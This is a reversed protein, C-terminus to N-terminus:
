SGPDLTRFTVDTYLVVDIELGILIRMASLAGPIPNGKLLGHAYCARTPKPQMALLAEELEGSTVRKGNLDINGDQDVYIRPTGAPCGGVPTEAISPATLFLACALMPLDSALRLFGSRFKGM